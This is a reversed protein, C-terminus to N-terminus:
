KIRAIRIPNAAGNFFPDSYRKKKKGKEIM